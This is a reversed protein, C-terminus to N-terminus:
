KTVANDIETCFVDLYASTPLTPGGSFFLAVSTSTATFFVSYILQGTSTGSNTVYQVADASSSSCYYYQITAGTWSYVPAATSVAGGTWILQFMYTTGVNLPMVIEASTYSPVLTGVSFLTTAGFPNTNSVSTRVTHFSAVAGGAQDQIHPTMFEVCYTVWLEGIVYASSMGSTAVEVQGLDYLRADSGSPVSGTRVYLEDATATRQCEVGHMMSVSPKASMAGEFNEMQQKSTFTTDLANYDTAIIVTGLAATSTNYESSTTRFEVIMGHMKYREYNQAVASLWPFTTPQGPNLPYSTVAFTTSGTLDGLYERHCVINNRKGSVFQPAQNSNYLVNYGPGGGVAYDGSGFITGVGTGLWRGISSGLPGFMSGVMSGADAFPTSISARALQRELAAIRKEAKSHTANGSTKKKLSLKSRQKKAMHSVSAVPVTCQAFKFLSGHLRKANQKAVGDPIKTRLQEVGYWGM